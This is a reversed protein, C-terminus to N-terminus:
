LKNEKALSSILLGQKERHFRCLVWNVPGETRRGFGESYWTSESSDFFEEPGYVKGAEIRWGDKKLKTVDM